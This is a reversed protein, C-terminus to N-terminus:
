SGLALCSGISRASRVFRVSSSNLAGPLFSTLFVERVIRGTPKVRALEGLDGNKAFGGQERKKM